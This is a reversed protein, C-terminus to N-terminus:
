YKFQSNLIKTKQEGKQIYKYVNEGVDINVMPRNRIAKLEQIVESLDINNNVINENNIPIVKAGVPLTDFLTPQQVIFKKGQTIVLEPQGAEGILAAGGKHYDTGEAYPRPRRVINTSANDPKKVKQAAAEAAAEGAKRIATQAQIFSATVASVAAAIRAAALYPDGGIAIKVAKAIAIGQELLVQAMALKQQLLVREQEDEINAAMANGISVIGGVVASALEARRNMEAEMQRMTEDHLETQAEALKAKLELSKLTYEEETYGQEEYVNALTSWAEIEANIGEIKIRISETALENDKQEKSMGSGHIKIKATAELKENQANLDELMKDFGKKRIDQIRYTSGEIEEEIEADWKKQIALYEESGEKQTKLELEKEKEYGEVLRKTKQTEYNILNDLIKESNVNSKELRDENMQNLIKLLEIQSKELRDKQGKAFEEELKALQADRLRKAIEYTKNTEQGELGLKKITQKFDKDIEAQKNEYIQQYTKSSANAIKILADQEYKLRKDALTEEENTSGSFMTALKQIEPQLAKVKNFFNEYMKNGKTTIETFYKHASVAYEGFIATENNDWNQQMKAAEQPDIKLAEIYKGHFATLEKDYYDIASQFAEIGNSKEIGKDLIKAIKEAEKDAYGIEKAIDERKDGQANLLDLISKESNILANSAEEAYKDSLAKKLSMEVWANTLNNVEKIHSKLWKETVGMTGAIEKLVNNWEKSGKPLKNLLDVNSKLQIAQKQTSALADIQAEKNKKTIENRLKQEATLEKEAKIHKYIITTVTGLVAVLALIWGIGPIAKIAAGIGKLAGAFGKSTTTAAVNAASQANTATTAAATAGSATKEAGAQAITAATKEKTYKLLLRNITNRTRLITNSSQMIKSVYENKLGLIDFAEGLGSMGQTMLRTQTSLEGATIEYNGVNRQNNGISKDLGKLQEDLGNIATKLVGGVEANNREEESLSRFVERLHGLKQNMEDMSGGTAIQEKSLNKLQMNAESIVVANEHFEVKNAAVSQLYKTQTIENNKFQKELEKNSDKLKQQQLETAAIEKALATASRENQQLAISLARIQEIDNKAAAAMADGSKKIEREIALRDSNATNLQQTTQVMQNVAQEITRFGTAQNLSSKLKDVAVVLSNVQEENSKLDSLLQRLQDFAQSNVIENISQGTM